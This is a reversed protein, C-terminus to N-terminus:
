HLKLPLLPFLISLTPIPRKKLFVALGLLKICHCFFAVPDLNNQFTRLVLLGALGTCGPVDGGLVLLVGGFPQLQFFEVGDQSPHGYMFLYFLFEKEPTRWLPLSDKPFYFMYVMAFFVTAVNCVLELLNVLAM